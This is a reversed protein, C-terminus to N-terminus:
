PPDLPFIRGLQPSLGSESGGEVPLRKRGKDAIFFFDKLDIKEVIKEAPPNL